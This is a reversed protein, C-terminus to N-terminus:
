VTSGRWFPRRPSLFTATTSLHGSHPFFPTIHCIKKLPTSYGMVIIWDNLHYVHLQPRAATATATTSLNLYSSIYPSDAPVFFLSRQPSTATLPPEVTHQVCSGMCSSDWPLAAVTLFPWATKKKGQYFAKDRTFVSPYIYGCNVINRDSTQM